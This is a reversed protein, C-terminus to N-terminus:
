LRDIWNKLSSIQENWQRFIYINVCNLYTDILKNIRQMHNVVTVAQNLSHTVTNEDNYTLVWEGRMIGLLYVFKRLAETNM